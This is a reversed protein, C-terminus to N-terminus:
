RTENKVKWDSSDNDFKQQNKISISNSKQSFKRYKEREEGFINAKSKNEAVEDIQKWRDGNQTEEPEKEIPAAM